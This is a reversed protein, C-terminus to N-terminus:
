CRDWKQSTVRLMRLLGGKTKIRFTKSKDKTSFNANSAAVVTANGTGSVKNLTVITAM